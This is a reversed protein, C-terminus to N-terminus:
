LHGQFLQNTYTHMAPFLYSKTKLNKKETEKIVHLWINAM